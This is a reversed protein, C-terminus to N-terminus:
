RLGNFLVTQLASVGFPKDKLEPNFLLEVNQTLLLNPSWIKPVLILIHYVVAFFADMDVHVIIQSLDRQAEIESLQFVASSSITLSSAKSVM